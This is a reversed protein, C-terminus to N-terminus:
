GRRVEEPDQGWEGPGEREANLDAPWIAGADEAAGTAGKQARARDLVEGLLEGLRGAETCLERVAEADGGSEIRRRLEAVRGRIEQLRVSPDSATANTSRNAAPVHAM